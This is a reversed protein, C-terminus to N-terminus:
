PQIKCVFGDLNASCPVDNWGSSDGNTNPWFQICAPAPGSCNPEPGVAVRWNQFDWPTGDTWDYIADPGSCFGDVAIGGVFGTIGRIGLPDMLASIFDDEEQSHISALHGGFLDNCAQEAANGDLGSPVFVYCSGQLPLVDGHALHDALANASISILHVNSPNDPPFHCVEVKGAPAAMAVSSLLLSGIGALALRKLM